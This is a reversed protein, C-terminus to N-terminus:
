TQRVGAILANVFLTHGCNKCYIIILPFPGGGESPVTAFNNALAWDSAGCVFCKHPNNPKWKTDLWTQYRANENADM